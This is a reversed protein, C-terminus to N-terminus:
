DVRVVVSTFQVENTNRVFRDSHFIIAAFLSLHDFYNSLFVVNGGIWTFNSISLNVRALWIDGVNAFPHSHSGGFTGFESNRDWCLCCSAIISTFNQVSSHVTPETNCALNGASRLVANTHSGAFNGYKDFNSKRAVCSHRSASILILNPLFSRIV